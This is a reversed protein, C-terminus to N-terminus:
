FLNINESVPSEDNGEDDDDNFNLTFNKKKIIAIVDYSKHM